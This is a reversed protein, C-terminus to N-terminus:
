DCAFNFPVPTTAQVGPANKEYYCYYYGSLAPESHWYKNSFVALLKTCLKLYEDPDLKEFHAFPGVNKLDEACQKQEDSLETPRTFKKEEYGRETFYPLMFEHQFNNQLQEVKEQLEGNSPAYFTAHGHAYFKLHILEHVIGEILRDDSFYFIKARYYSSGPDKFIRYRNEQKAHEEFGIKGWFKELSELLTKLNEDKLCQKPIEAM